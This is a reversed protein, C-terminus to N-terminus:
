KERSAMSTKAENVYDIFKYGEKEQFTKGAHSYLDELIHKELVPAGSGFIKVLSEAFLDAKVESSGIGLHHFVAITSSQGLVEIFTNNICEFLIEDFKKKQHPMM